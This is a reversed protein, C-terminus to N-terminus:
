RDHQGLHRCDHRRCPRQRQDGRHRQDRQLGIAPWHSCQRGLRPHQRDRDHRHGQLSLPAPASSILTAVRAATSSMTAAAASSPTRLRPDPSPTPEAVPTSRSSGPSPRAASIWSITAAPARSPSAPIATPASRKSGSTANFGSQLGIVANNVAALISDTGTTGTDKIADFGDNAGFLYTDGGEGGNLIDNAAGGIITNVAGSGTITDGGGSGNISVIGTSTVGTFNLVDNSFTGSITVGSDGNADIAEIGNAASFGGQLGIVANDVSEIIGDTGTTGTDKISDSGSGAGILYTDGGQGGNLKDNGAGGIITDSAASGTITDDGAGGDVATIGTLAVTSFDLTDSITNGAITVGAHGNAGIAEIGSTSGFGSALGIVANDASALISDTGTTGTDKISDFGAGIGVLYTDGGENGNLVDNGAGGIITDAIVSGSIIDNGVAGDIAAIGTLAISTFNLTDNATSDRIIVGAHGNASIVEIGNGAGFGGQMGIVANYVTAIM